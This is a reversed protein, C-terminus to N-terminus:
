KNLTSESLINNEINKIGTCLDLFEKYKYNFITYEKSIRIEIIRSMILLSLSM